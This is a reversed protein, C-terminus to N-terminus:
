SLSYLSATAPAIFSGVTRAVRVISSIPLAEITFPTALEASSPM